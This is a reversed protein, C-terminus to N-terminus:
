HGSSSLFAILDEHLYWPIVFLGLNAIWALTAMIVWIRKARLTFFAYFM